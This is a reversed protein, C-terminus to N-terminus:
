IECFAGSDVREVRLSQAKGAKYNPNRGLRFPFLNCQGSPCTKVFDSKGNMCSLCEKRIVKVSPREEGQRYPYLPCPKGTGLLMEGGCIKTEYISGVCEVCHKRIAEGPTM